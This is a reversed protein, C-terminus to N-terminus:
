EQEYGQLIALEAEIASKAAPDILDTLPSRVQGGQLGILNMALKLAPVGWRSTVMVALPSLLQHLKLAEPHNGNDFAAMIRCSVRPMVNAVALIGGVAGLCLAPYLMASAGVIVSFDPDTLRVIESLQDMSGSSDKIGIINPHESLTRVLAPGLNLGTAAPMNYILVPVPSTEALVLYHATLREETMLSKYYHPPLVLLCDGGLEAARHALRIAEKTSESGTGIVLLKDESAAERAAEIVRDKEQDNLYAAEGNSGLVVYGTLGTQNYNSINAKFAELDLEDNKFPTAVPPMVGGPKLTM